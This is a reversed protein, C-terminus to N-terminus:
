SRPSALCKRWAAGQPWAGPPRSHRDDRRPQGLRDAPKGGPRLGDPGAVAGCDSRRSRGSPRQGRRFSIKRPRRSSSFPSKVGEVEGSSQTAGQQLMTATAKALVAKVQESHGTTDAVVATAAKGPAPEIMAIAVEGGTVTRLDEITLGYRQRLSAWHEQARKRNDKRFQEMVRDNFAAWKPIMGNNISVIWM